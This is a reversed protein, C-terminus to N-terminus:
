KSITIIFNKIASWITDITNSKVMGKVTSQIVDDTLPNQYSESIANSIEETICIDGFRKMQIPAAAATITSRASSSTRAATKHHLTHPRVSNQQPARFKCAASVAAEFKSQKWEKKARKERWRRRECVDWGGSCFPATRRSYPVVVRDHWGRLRFVTDCFM